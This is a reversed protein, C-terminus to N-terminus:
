PSYQVNMLSANGATMNCALFSTSTSSVNNVSLSLTAHSGVTSLSGAAQSAVFGNQNIVFLTCSLDASSSSRRGRVQVTRYTGASYFNSWYLPVVFTQFACSSGSVRQV